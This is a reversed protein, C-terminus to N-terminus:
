ANSCAQTRAPGTILKAGHPDVNVSRGCYFCRAIAERNGIVDSRRAVPVVRGEVRIYEQFISLSHGNARCVNRALSKLKAINM